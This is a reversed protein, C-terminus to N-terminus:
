DTYKNIIMYTVECTVEDSLIIVFDGPEKNGVVATVPDEAENVSLFIYSDSRVLSNNVKAYRPVGEERYGFPPFQVTGMSGWDGVEVEFEIPGVDPAYRHFFPGIDVTNNGHALSISGQDVELALSASATNHARIGVAGNGAIGTGYESYGLVGVNTRTEVGDSIGAAGIYADSGGTNSRLGLYGRTAGDARGYAGYEYVTTILFPFTGRSFSHSSNFEGYIEPHATNVATVSPAGVADIHGGKLTCSAFSYPVCSILRRPSLSSGNIWVHLTLDNGQGYDTRTLATNQVPFAFYGNNVNIPRENINFVSILGSYIRGRFNYTGDLAVGDLGTLRGQLYFSDPIEANVMCNIVATLFFVFILLSRLSRSM